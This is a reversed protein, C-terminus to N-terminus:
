KRCYYYYYYLLLYRLASPCLSVPTQSRSEQEINQPPKCPLWPDDGAVVLPIPIPFWKRTM